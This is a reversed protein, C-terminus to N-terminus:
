FPQIDYYWGKSVIDRNEEIVIVNFTCRHLRLSAPSPNTTFIFTNVTPMFENSSDYELIPTSYLLNVPQITILDTSTFEIRFKRTLTSGAGGILTFTAKYRENTLLQIDVSDLLTSGFTYTVITQFNDFKLFNRSTNVEPLDWYMEGTPTCRLVDNNTTPQSNPLIYETNNGTQLKFKISGGQFANKVELEETNINETANLQRVTIEDIDTVVNTWELNGDDDTKLLGNSGLNPLTEPLKYTLDQIGDYTFNTSNGLVNDITLSRSIVEVNAKLTNCEIYNFPAQPPDIPLSFRLFVKDGVISDVLLVSLPGINTDNPLVLTYKTGQSDLITDKISLSNVNINYGNPQLLQSISM